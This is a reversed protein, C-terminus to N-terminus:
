KLLNFTPMQKRHKLLNINVDINNFLSLLHKYHVPLTLESTGNLLDEYKSAMSYSTLIKNAKAELKTM